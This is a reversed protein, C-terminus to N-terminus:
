TQITTDQWGMDVKTLEVIRVSISEDLLAGPYDMNIKRLCEEVLAKLFDVGTSGPNAIRILEQATKSIIQIALSLRITHESANKIIIGFNTGFLLGDTSSGASKALPEIYIVM